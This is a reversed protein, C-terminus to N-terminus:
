AHIIAEDEAGQGLVRFGLGDLGFFAVIICTGTPLFLSYAVHTASGLTKEAYKHVNLMYSQKTKQVKDKM